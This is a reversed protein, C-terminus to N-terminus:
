KRQVHMECLLLSWSVTKDKLIRLQLDYSSDVVVLSAALSIILARLYSLYHIDCIIIILWM